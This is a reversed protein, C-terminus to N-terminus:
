LAETCWGRVLEEQVGLLRVFRETIESREPEVKCIVARQKLRKAEETKAEFFAQHSPAVLEDDLCTLGPAHEQIRQHYAVEAQVPNGRLNLDTLQACRRLYYLQDLSRVCNGELDLVALHELFGIDFLESVENFGLYLEELHQFAQIGQVERLECRALHLVRVFKFSSGIDRFCKIISDSMKLYELSCM